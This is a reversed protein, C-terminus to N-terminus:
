ERRQGQHASVELERHQASLRDLVGNVFKHADASGFTKTLEVYEDIVVRYPIDIRESLEVAALRLVGREVMDLQDLPRDLLPTLMQDLEDSHKIMRTLIDLFFEEDAKDLAREAFEEHLQALDADAFQWQYAAQVLARRAKRRAWINPKSKKETM